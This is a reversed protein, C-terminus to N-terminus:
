RDIASAGKCFEEFNIQGDGDIDSLRILEDIASDDLPEGLM